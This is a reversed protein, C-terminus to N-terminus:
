NLRQVTSTYVSLREAALIESNCVDSTSCAVRAYLPRNPLEVIDDSDSVNYNVTDDFAYRHDPAM